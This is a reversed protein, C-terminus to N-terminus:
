HYRALYLLTRLTNTYFHVLDISILDLAYIPHFPTLDLLAFIQPDNTGSHTSTLDYTYTPHFPILNLHAFTRLHPPGLITGSNTLGSNQQTVTASPHILTTAHNAVNSLASNSSLRATTSKHSPILNSQCNNMTETVKFKM